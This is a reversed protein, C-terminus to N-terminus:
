GGFAKRLSRLHGVPIYLLNFCAVVGSASDVADLYRKVDDEGIRLTKRRFLPHNIMEFGPHIPCGLGAAKAARSLEVRAYGESVGETELRSVTDPLPCELSRAILDLVAKESLGQNAQLIGRALSSAELSIGGPGLSHCYLMPKIWDVIRGLDAFDQGYYRGLSSTFLDLGIGKNMSKALQAYQNVVDAILANKRAFMPELEYRAFLAGLTVDALDRDNATRLWSLFLRAQERWIETSPLCRPCFCGFLSELGNIASPYRIRDVFVGDYANLQARCNEFVHDRYRRAQPCSFVFKEESKGLNEWVGLTGRESGGWADVVREDERPHELEAHGVRVADALAPWWLYVEVGCRRSLDLVLETVAPDCSPWFLLRRLGAVNIATELIRQIEERAFVQLEYQNVVLQAAIINKESM